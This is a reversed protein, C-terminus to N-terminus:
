QEPSLQRRVSEEHITEFLAAVFDPALGLSQALQESHERSSATIGVLDAGLYGSLCRGVKGGGIIGIRM